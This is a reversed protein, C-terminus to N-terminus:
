PEPMRSWADAVADALADPVPDPAYLRTAREPSEALRVGAEAPEHGWMTWATHDPVIMAPTM